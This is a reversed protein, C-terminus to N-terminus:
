KVLDECADVLAKLADSKYMKKAKIATLLLKSRDFTSILDVLKQPTLNKQHELWAAGQQVLYEANKTQHDDVASPLPIFIAAVGVAALETVTSAGSRCIVLDADAFAIATNDIFPKIEAIVDLKDYNKQLEFFHNNGSQHLVIPRNDKPLLSITKPIIENLFKAGLSGGIILIKLPGERNKFRSEPEAQKSFEIRLPNGIWQANKIVNPFATYVQTAFIALARNSLGAVSNQEHLYLSINFFRGALGAPFTVYGGFGLIINPKIRYIIKASQFFARLLRFPMAFWAITGKGRLGSFQIGEFKLNHKPVIISEMGKTTGLWVVKWGNNNLENALALGPFIHGGTGGAVIMAIKQKVMKRMDSM